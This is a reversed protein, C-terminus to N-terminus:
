ITAQWFSSQQKEQAQSQSKHRSEVLKEKLKDIRGGDAWPRAVPPMYWNITGHIRTGEVPTSRFLPPTDPRRARAPLSIKDRGARDWDM